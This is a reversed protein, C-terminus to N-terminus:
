PPAGGARLLIADVAFASARFGGDARPGLTLSRLSVRASWREGTMDLVMDAAPLDRIELGGYARYGTEGRPTTRRMERAAAILSSLPARAEVRDALWMVVELSDESLELRLTDGEVLGRGGGRGAILLEFGTAEVPAPPADAMLQMPWDTPGSRIQLAAMVTAVRGPVAMRADPAGTGAEPSTLTDAGPRTAPTGEVEPPAATLAGPDDFWSDLASTGHHQVLYRVVAEAQDWDEFPVVTTDSTVRGDVLGGYEALIGALRRVQSNEAVSYASWPGMFTVVGVLLLSVPIGKIERTRTIATYLATGALWIALGGLLYRRETIGYQGIRQWLALLVMGAAPLMALWFALAYRDIRSGERKLRDPHVMLLSFIGAVALSSVLYSIWGSPWSGTVLVRGMYVTLIAVYLAVIPLMVCQSFVKLGGPYRRDEELAPFDAPVGALFFVPHFLFAVLLLLRLYHLDPVDVGFLNDLAALALLLGLFIAGSYLTAVLFRFLLARNYQWFGRPEAAGLYPAVAVLLHFTLVLHGYRQPINLPEWGEFRFYLVVLVAAALARPVWRLASAPWHREGILTVGIFLPIGLTAVRIIGVSLAHPDSEVVFMGAAAAAVGCIGVEPFRRVTAGAAAVIRGVSPLRLSGAVGSM